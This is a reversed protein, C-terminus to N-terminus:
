ECYDPHDPELEDCPAGFVDEDTCPRGKEQSCKAFVCSDTACDEEANLRGDIAAMVLLGAILWAGPSKLIDNM